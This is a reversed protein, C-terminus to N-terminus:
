ATGEPLKISPGMHPPPPVNREALALLANLERITDLPKFRQVAVARATDNKSDRLLPNIDRHCLLMVSSDVFGDNLSLHLATCQFVTHLKNVDLDPHLLLMGLPITRQEVALMHVLAEGSILVVNPDVGPQALLLQVMAPSSVQASAFHMMAISLATAHDSLRPVNIAQQVVPIRLLRAAVLLEGRQVALLLPTCQMRDQAIPDAGAALLAEVAEYNGTKCASHLATRELKGKKLVLEQPANKIHGAIIARPLYPKCRTMTYLDFLPLPDARLFTSRQKVQPRKSHDYRPPGSSKTSKASRNKNEYMSGSRSAALLADVLSFDSM